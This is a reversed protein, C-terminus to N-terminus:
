RQSDNKTVSNKYQVFFLTTVFAFLLATGMYTLADHKKFMMVLISWLMLGLAPIIAPPFHKM